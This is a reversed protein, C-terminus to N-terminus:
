PLCPATAIAHLFEYLKWLVDLQQQYNTIANAQEDSSMAAAIYRMISVLTKMASMCGTNNEFQWCQLSLFQQQVPHPLLAYQQRISEIEIDLTELEGPTLSITPWNDNHM